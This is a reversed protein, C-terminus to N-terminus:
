VVPDSSLSIEAAPELKSFPNVDAAVSLRQGWSVSVASGNAVFVSAPKERLASAFPGYLAELDGTLQFNRASWTKWSPHAVEYALTRGDRHRTYGWYHEAIFEDFGGAALAAPEGSFDASATIGESNGWRYWVSGAGGAETPIQIRSAVPRTVYNEHYITRAVWSILRRAVVEKLFVVGRRWGDAERRRVYFRLNVEDFDRHGPLSLGLVRTNLFRFGVLSVYTTGEYRDLETGIPVYPSLLEPDVPYNAMMLWRWEATLFPGRHAPM